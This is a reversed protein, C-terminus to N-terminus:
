GGGSPDRLTAAMGEWKKHRTQSNTGVRAIEEDTHDCKAESRNDGALSICGSLTEWLTWAMCEQVNAEACRGLAVAYQVVTSRYVRMRSLKM